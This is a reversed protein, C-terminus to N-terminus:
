KKIFAIQTYIHLESYEKGILTSSLIQELKRIVTSGDPSGGYPYTWQVALDEIVYFGDERLNDWLINYSKIIDSSQHSGDDIIASFNPLNLSKIFDSSTADGCFTKIREEQFIKSSDIDIGFINAKSFYEKWMRLSGGNFIGIELLNFSSDRSPLHKEYYPCYGHSSKDTNYKIALDELNNM